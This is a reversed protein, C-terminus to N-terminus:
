RRTCTAAPTWSRSRLQCSDRVEATANALGLCSASHGHLQVSVQLCLRVAHTALLLWQVQSLRIQQEADYYTCANMNEHNFNHHGLFYTMGSPGFAIENYLEDTKWTTANWWSLDPNAPMVNTGTGARLWFTDRL